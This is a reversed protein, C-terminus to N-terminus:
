LCLYAVYALCGVSLISNLVAVSIVGATPRRRASTFSIVITSVCLVISLPLGAPFSSGRDSWAAYRSIGWFAVLPMLFALVVLVSADAVVTSGKWTM